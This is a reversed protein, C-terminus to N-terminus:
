QEEVLGYVRIEQLDMEDTVRVVVFDAGADTVEAGPDMSVSAVQPGEAEFILWEQAEDTPARYAQVWLRGDAAVRLNSYLPMSEPWPVADIYSTAAARGQPPVRDIYRRRAQEIDAASVVRPTLPVQISGIVQGNAPSVMRIEPDRTSGVYVVDSGAAIRLDEGFPLRGVRQGQFFWEPGPNSGIELYREGSRDFAYLALTDQYVRTERPVDMNPEHQPEIVLWGSHLPHIIGGGAFHLPYRRQLAGRLENLAPVSVTEIHGGDPSFLSWRTQVLDWAFVTDGKLRAITRLRRFEGPGGGQGGATLLHRGTPDHFRLERTADDALVLRGDSLRLAGSNYVTQYDPREDRGGIAVLPTDSLTWRTIPQSAQPTSSADATDDQQCGSAGAAALLMGAFNLILTRRSRLHRM